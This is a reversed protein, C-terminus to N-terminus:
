DAQLLALLAHLPSFEQLPWPKRSILLFSHAAAFSFIFLSLLYCVGQRAGARERGACRGPAAAWQRGNCRTKGEVVGVVVLGQDFVIEAPEAM